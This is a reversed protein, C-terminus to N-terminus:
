GSLTRRSPPLPSHAYHCSLNRICMLPMHGPTTISNHWLGHALSLRMM